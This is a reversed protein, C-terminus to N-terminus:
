YLLIVLLRTIGYNWFVLFMVSMTFFYDLM